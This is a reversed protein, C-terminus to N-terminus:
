WYLELGGLMIFRFSIVIMWIMKYLSFDTQQIEKSDVWSVLQILLHNCIIMCLWLVCYIIIIPATCMLAFNINISILAHAYFYVWVCLCHHSVNQLSSLQLTFANSQSLASQKSENRETRKTKILANKLRSASWLHAHSKLCSLM